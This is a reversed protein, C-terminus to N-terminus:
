APTPGAAASAGQLAAWIKDDRNYFDPRFQLKGATDLFATQYVVFVPMPEPLNNRTTNGKAIEENVTDVPQRLLLAALQCPNQVRICGHSLRRNDRSFITRNPTDHLYVDFPNPMDFMILGLGAEPGPLQEADGNALMIMKNQTLYDPNRSIKPLIEATVIDSPIVWPPNFFSADIVAHFEPSQKNEADQGVVVRTAFVPRGAHYFVLREDAVNVWVRNPPLPRPLWRQRELNVAITRSREISAQDGSAAAANYTQLAQRLAHYTPTAPALAEIVASPDSSGIARDLVLTVDVPAPTLTEDDARRAVPVAGHALAGAYSLFADSLLIDQDLPPLIARRQLLGAHFMEPNLGQSDARSVAAVLSDAQAQRSTWVPEYGHRAYFRQLQGANLPEGGVALPSGTSILRGLATDAPQPAEVDVAPSPNAACGTLGCAAALALTGGTM